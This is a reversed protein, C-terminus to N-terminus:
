KEHKERCDEIFDELIQVAAQIQDHDERSGTAKALISDLLELATYVTM